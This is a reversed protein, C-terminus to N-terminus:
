DLTRRSSASLVGATALAPASGIPDYRKMPHIQGAVCGVEASVVVPSRSVRFPCEGPGCHGRVRYPRAILESTLIPCCSRMQRPILSAAVERRHCPAFIVFRGFVTNFRQPSRRMNEVPRVHGLREAVVLAHRHEVQWCIWRNRFYRCELHKVTDSAGRRGTVPRREKRLQQEIGSRNARGLANGRSSVAVRQAHIWGGPVQM